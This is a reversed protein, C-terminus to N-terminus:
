STKEQQFIRVNREVFVEEVINLVSDDLVMLAMM